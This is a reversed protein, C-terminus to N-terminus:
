DSLTELVRHYSLYRAEPLTGAAVAAAIACGKEGTHLCDRFQCRPVYYRFDRFLYAVDRAEVGWFGLERLGPTDIIRLGEANEYLHSTTTTHRGKGDGKRVEGVRPFAGPVLASILSSKGVGSSGSLVATRGSLTKCLDDIGEGSKASCTAVPYGLSQLYLLSDPLNRDLDIKNLCIFSELGFHEGLALYRDVLRPNYVPHAPTCVIVLVDVNAALVHEEHRREGPGPRAIRSRRPLIATILPEQSPSGPFFSVEDGVAFQAFPKIDITPSYACQTERGERDRVTATRRQVEILIGPQSALRTESM